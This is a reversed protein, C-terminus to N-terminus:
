LVEELTYVAVKHYAHVGGSPVLRYRCPRPARVSNLAAAGVRALNRASHYVLDADEPALALVGQLQGIAGMLRLHMDHTM